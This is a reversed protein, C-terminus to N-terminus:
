CSFQLSKQSALDLHKRANHIELVKFRSLIRIKLTKLSWINQLHCLILWKLFNLNLLAHYYISHSGDKFITVVSLTNCTPKWNTVAIYYQQELIEWRESQNWHSFVATHEWSSFGTSKQRLKPQLQKVLLHKNKM